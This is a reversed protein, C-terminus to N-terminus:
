GTVFTFLCPRYGLEVQDLGEDCALVDVAVELFGAAKQTSISGLMKLPKLGFSGQDVSYGIGAGGNQRAPFLPLLNRAVEIVSADDDLLGSLQVRSQEVFAQEFGDM